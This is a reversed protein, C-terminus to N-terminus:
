SEWEVDHSDVSEKAAILRAEDVDQLVPDTFAGHERLLDVLQRAAAATLDDTVFHKAPNDREFIKWTGM